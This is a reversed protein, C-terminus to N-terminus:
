LKAPPRAQYAALKTGNNDERTHAASGNVIQEREKKQNDM